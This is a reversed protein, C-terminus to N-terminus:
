AKAKLVTPNNAQGSALLAMLNNPPSVGVSLPALAGRKKIQNSGQSLAQAILPNLNGMSPDFAAMNQFTQLQEKGRAVIDSPRINQEIAQMVTPSLSPMDKKDSALLGLASGGSPAGSKTRAFNPTEPIRINERATFQPIQPVIAQFRNGVLPSLDPQFRSQLAPLLGLSERTPVDQLRATTAESLKALLSEETPKSSTATSEENGTDSTSDGKNLIQDIKSDGKNLIQDLKSGGQEEQLKEWKKYEPTGFPPKINPNYLPNKKKGRPYTTRGTSVEPRVYERQYMNGEPDFYSGNAYSWTPSSTFITSM